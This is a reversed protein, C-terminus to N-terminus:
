GSNESAPYSVVVQFLREWRSYSYICINISASSSIGFESELTPCGLMWGLNTSFPTVYSDYLVLSEFSCSSPLWHWDNLSDTEIWSTYEQQTKQILIDCAMAVWEVHNIKEQRGGRDRFGCGFKESENHCFDMVLKIGYEYQIETRLYTPKLILRARHHLHRFFSYWYLWKIM